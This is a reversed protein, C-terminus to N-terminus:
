DEEAAFFDDDALNSISSTSVKNKKQKRPKDEEERSLRKREKPKQMDEKTRSELELEPENSLEGNKMCEIIREKVKLAKEQTVSADEEKMSGEDKNPFLAVYKQTM